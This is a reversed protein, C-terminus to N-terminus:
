EITANYYIFEYQPNGISISSSDMFCVTAQEKVMWQKTIKSEWTLKDLVRIKIYNVNSNAKLKYTATQASVLVCVFAFM